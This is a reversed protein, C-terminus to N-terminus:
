LAFSSFAGLGQSWILFRFMFYWANAGTVDCLESNCLLELETEPGQTQQLSGVGRQCHLWSFPGQGLSDWASTPLRQPPVPHAALPSPCCPFM